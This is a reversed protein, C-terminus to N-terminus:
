ALLVTGGGVRLPLTNGDLYKVEGPRLPYCRKVIGNRWEERKEEQHPILDEEWPSTNM